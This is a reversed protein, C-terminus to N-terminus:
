RIIGRQSGEIFSLFTEVEAVDGWQSRGKELVEKKTLSSRFFLKYVAKLADIKEKSFQQRKLGILNLGYPRAHNGSAMLYPPVDQVVIAGGGIMTYAGIRVFQHVAVLGGLVAYDGITIHGGLTAVNAMTVHNGIISDHAVHSYAMFYNHNGIVTENRGKPTGRHLTVYERFTNDHGIILRTPEGKYKFDQPPLGIASHPYIICREGIETHGDIVVHSEITTDAGIKVSEGIISFPGVNVSSALQAKPHIIATPHIM